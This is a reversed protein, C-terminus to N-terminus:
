TIIISGSFYNLTRINCKIQLDEFTDGYIRLHLDCARCMATTGRPRLATKIPHFEFSYDHNQPFSLQFGLWAPDERFHKRIGGSDFLGIIENNLQYLIYESNMDNRNNDVWIWRM